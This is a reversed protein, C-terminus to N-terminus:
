GKVPAPICGGAFGLRDGWVGLPYARRCVCVKLQKETVGLLAPEQDVLSRASYDNVDLVASLAQVAAAEAVEDV